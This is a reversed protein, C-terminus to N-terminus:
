FFFGRTENAIQSQSGSPLLGAIVDRPHRNLAELARGDASSILTEGSFRRRRLRAVQLPSPMKAVLETPGHVAMAGGVQGVPSYYGSRYGGSTGRKQIGVGRDNKSCFARLLWCVRARAIRLLPTFM